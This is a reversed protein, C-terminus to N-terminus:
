YLSHASLLFNKQKTEHGAEIMILYISHMYNETLIINIKFVHYSPLFSKVVHCKTLLAIHAMKNAGPHERVLEGEMAMLGKFDESLYRAM